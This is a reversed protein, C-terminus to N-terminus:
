SLTLGGDVVVAEGTVYGADDSALFAILAAVEDPSGLRAMPVWDRIYQDTLNAQRLMKTDILGPCVANVRIGHEGLEAAMQKTLNLVGAKAANYHASTGVPDAAFAAISATNVIAGGGARVMERAVAQGFLFIGKLDIDVVSDWRDPDIELFPVIDYVGANNVLVDIRALQEVARAVARAVDEAKTVDGVVMGALRDAPLATAADRLAANDRDVLFVRAGESALRRATALGIGGAGGTVVATRDAFRTM